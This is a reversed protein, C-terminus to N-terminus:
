KDLFDKVTEPPRLPWTDLPEHRPHAGPETPLHSRYLTFRDVRFAPGSYDALAHVAARSAPDRARWRGLTVHPRYPRREVRVRGRRAARRVARALAALRDVRGDQGDLGVWLVQPRGNPPFTGAGALRLTFPGLGGAAGALERRLRPLAPDDVEGLFVLTVHWADPDTWRPGDPLGTVADVAGALSRCADVGLAVATFLRM